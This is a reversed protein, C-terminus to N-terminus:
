AVIVGQEAGRSGDFVKDGIVLRDTLPNPARRGGKARMKADAKENVLQWTSYEKELRQLDRGLIESPPARVLCRAEDAASLAASPAGGAPASDPKRSPCTTNHRIPWLDHFTSSCNAPLLLTCIRDSVGKVCSKVARGSSRGVPCWLRIGREYDCRAHTHHSWQDLVFARPEFDTHLKGHWSVTGQSAYLGHGDLFAAHGRTMGVFMIPRKRSHLTAAALGLWVDEWPPQVPRKGECPHVWQRHGAKPLASASPSATAARSSSATTTVNSRQDIRMPQRPRLSNDLSPTAATQAAARLRMAEKREGRTIRDVHSRYSGWLAGTMYCRRADAHELSEAHARLVADNAISQALRSTIFFTQGKPFTFPGTANGRYTLNLGFNTYGGNPDYRVCTATSAHGRWGIPGSNLAEGEYWYYGELRGIIAESPANEDSPSPPARLATRVLRLMAAMALSDMWVDDDAKGLFTATPFIRTACRFYLMMTSLPGIPRPLSSNADLLLLDAHARHEEAIAEPQELGRGRMAFFPTISRPVKDWWSNRIGRRMYTHSEHSFVALVALQHPSATVAREECFLPPPLISTTPSAARRAQITPMRHACCQFSRHSRRSFQALWWVCWGRFM